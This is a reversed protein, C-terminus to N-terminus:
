ITSYTDSRFIMTRAFYFNREELLTGNKEKLTAVQDHQKQVQSNLQKGRPSLPTQIPISKSRMAAALLQGYHSKSSEICLLLANTV